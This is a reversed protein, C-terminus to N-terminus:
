VVEFGKALIYIAVCGFFIALEWKWDPSIDYKSKGIKM